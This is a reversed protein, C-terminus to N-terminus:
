AHLSDYNLFPIWTGGGGALEGVEAQEQKTEHDRQNEHGAAPAMGGPGLFTTLATTLAGSHAPPERCKEAEAHGESDESLKGSQSQDEDHESGDLLFDEDPV